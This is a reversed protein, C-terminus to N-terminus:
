NLKDSKSKNIKMYRNSGASFHYEHQPRKHQSETNSHLTYIGTVTNKMAKMLRPLINEWCTLVWKDSHIISRYGGGWFFFFVRYIKVVTIVEFILFYLILM